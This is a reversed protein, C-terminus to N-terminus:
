RRAKEDAAGQAEQRGQKKQNSRARAAEKQKKNRHKSKPSKDGMTVM